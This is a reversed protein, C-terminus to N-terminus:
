GAYKQYEISVLNEEGKYAFSMMDSNKFALFEMHDSDIDPPTDFSFSAATLESIYSKVSESNDVTIELRITGGERLIQEIHGRLQPVGPLDASPKLNRNM